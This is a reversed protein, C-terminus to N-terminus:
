YALARGWGYRPAAGTYEGTEPDIALNVVYGILGGAVAPEPEDVKMGLARVSELLSADFEGPIVVETESVGFVPESDFNPLLFSPADNATKADYGYALMNALVKVTEQQLGSGVSSMAAYLRGDKMVIVPLIGAWHKVGPGERAINGQQFSAADPITIGDVIIGTTGWVATNISHTLAAVNGWQDVAVVADSHGPYSEPVPGGSSPPLEFTGAQVQKWYDRGKAKDLWDDDPINGPGFVQRVLNGTARMARHFGVFVEPSETYHGQRTLGSAELLNFVGLLYHSETSSYVDYGRYSLNLPDSWEVRYSTMDEMTM